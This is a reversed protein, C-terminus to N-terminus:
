FSNFFDLPNAHDVALNRIRELDASSEEILEEVRKVQRRKTELLALENKMELIAGAEKQIQPLVYFLIALAM